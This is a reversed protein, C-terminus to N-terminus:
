QWLRAVWEWISMVWGVVTGWLFALWGQTETSDVPEQDEKVATDGKKLTELEQKVDIGDQKLRAGATAIAGMGQNLKELLGDYYRTLDGTLYLLIHEIDKYLADIEYAIARARIDDVNKIQDLKDHAEDQYSGAKTIEELVQALVMDLSENYKSMTDLDKKLGELLVKAQAVKTVAIQETSRHALEYLLEELKGQEFGLTIFNSDIKKVIEERKTLYYKQATVVKKFLERIKDCVAQAREYWIRKQLWNGGSQLAMTDLNIQEEIEPKPQEEVIPETVPEASKESDVAVVPEPPAPDSESPSSTEEATTEIEPTDASVDQEQDEDQARVSGLCCISIVLIVFRSRSM